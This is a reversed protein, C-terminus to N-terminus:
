KKNKREKQEEMYRTELKYVNRNYSMMSIEELVVDSTELGVYSIDELDLVVLDGKKHQQSPLYQKGGIKCGSVGVIRGLNEEKPDNWIYGLSRIGSYATYLDEYSINNTDAYPAIEVRFHVNNGAEYCERLYTPIQYISDLETQFIANESKGFKIVNDGVRFAICTFGSGIYEIDTGVDNQSGSRDVYDEYLDKLMSKVYDSFNDVKVQDLNDEKRIRRNVLILIVSDIIESIYKEKDSSYQKLKDFLERFQKDESNM